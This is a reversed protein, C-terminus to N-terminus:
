PDLIPVAQSRALFVSHCGRPGDIHAATARIDPEGRPGIAVQPPGDDTTARDPVPEAAGLM